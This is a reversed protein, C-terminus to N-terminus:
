VWPANSAALSGHVGATHTFQPHGTLDGAAWKHRNTTRLYKDVVVFGRQDVEVGAAALGMGATRPARGVSVLLEDYDVHSGDQLRM